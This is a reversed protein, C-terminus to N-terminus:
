GPLRDAAIAKLIDQAEVGWHFEREHQRGDAAAVGSLGDAVLRALQAARPHSAIATLGKIFDRDDPAQSARVKRRATELHQDNLDFRLAYRCLIDDIAEEELPHNEGDCRAMFVMIQSLRTLTKDSLSMPGHKWIERFIEGPNLFEGTECCVMESIRDIRFARVERREFCYARVTEPRGDGDIRKCAIRRSSAIGDANTYAIFASFGSSFDRIVINEHAKVDDGGVDAQRGDPLPPKVALGVVARELRGFM